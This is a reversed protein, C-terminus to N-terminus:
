RFVTHSVTLSRAMFSNCFTATAPCYNYLLQVHIKAIFYISDPKRCPLFQVRSPGRWKDMELM